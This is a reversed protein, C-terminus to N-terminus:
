LEHPRCLSWIRGLNAACAFVNRLGGKFPGPYSLLYLSKSRGSRDPTRNGTAALNESCTWVTGPAWGAERIIPVPDRERSYHSGPTASVLWGECQALTLVLCAIYTYPFMWAREHLWQQLPFTIFIVYESHTHTHAAEPIECAIRMRWITM